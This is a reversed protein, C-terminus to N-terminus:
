HDSAHFWMMYGNHTVPLLVWFRYKRSYKRFTRFPRVTSEFVLEFYEPNREWPISFSIERYRLPRIKM